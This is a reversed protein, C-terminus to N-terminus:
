RMITSAPRVRVLCDQARRPARQQRADIHQRRRLQQLEQLGGEGEDAYRLQLRPRMAKAADKLGKLELGERASRPQQELPVETGITTM